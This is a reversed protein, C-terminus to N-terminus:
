SVKQLKPKFFDRAATEYDSERLGDAYTERIKTNIDPTIDHHKAYWKIFNLVPLVPEDRAVTGLSPAKRAEVKQLAPEGVDLPKGRKPIRLEDNNDNRDKLYSIPDIKGDFAVAGKNNRLRDIEQEDRTGYALEDIDQRNHDIPTLKAQHHHGGDMVDALVSDSTFGFEDVELPPIEYTIMEGFRNEYKVRINPYTYPNVTVKVKVGVCINDVESLSYKKGDFSIQYNGRVEREAPKTSLLMKCVEIQPRTVLQEPKIKRWAVFRPMGHRTHAYRQNSQFDRQWYECCENLEEVSKVKFLYLRGEFHREIIDNTKEVQGKARSNGAVHASHKVQLQDLLNKIMHSQNASGKDWYLMRPVGEFPNKQKDKEGMATMLFDFLVEQNEGRALYYKCYFAGSCHDTVVYRFVRENAIKYLNEMKNQYFKDKDMVSMSKGDKLYYLVCISPDLQWLQNPHETKMNIHPKAQKMQKPSLGNERLLRAITGEHYLAKIQGNEHAIEIAVKIPMLSKDNKRESSRVLAAIIQLEERTVASNGKDSRRKRNGGYGLKNLARHVTMTSVGLYDAARAIMKSREGHATSELRSKLDTYYAENKM